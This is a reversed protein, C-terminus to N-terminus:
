DNECLDAHLSFFYRIHFHPSIVAGLECGKVTLKEIHMIYVTRKGDEKTVWNRGGTKFEWRWCELDRLNRKPNHKIPIQTICSTRCRRNVETLTILFEKNQVQRGARAQRRAGWIAQLLYLIPHFSTCIGPEIEASVSLSWMLFWLCLSQNM